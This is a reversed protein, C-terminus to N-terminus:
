YKFKFKVDALNNTSVFEEIKEKRLKIGKEDGIAEVSLVINSDDKYKIIRIILDYDYRMCYVLEIFSRENVKNMNHFIGYGARRMLLYSNKNRKLEKSISVQSCEDAADNYQIDQKIFIREWWDDIDIDNLADTYKSSCNVCNLGTINDIYESCINIQRLEADNHKSIKYFDESLISKYFGVRYSQFKINGLTTLIDLLETKNNDNYQCTIFIITSTGRRQMKYVFKQGSPIIYEFEISPYIKCKRNKINKTVDKIIYSNILAKEAYKKDEIQYINRTEENFFYDKFDRFFEKFKDKEILTEYEEIVKIGGNFSYILSKKAKILSDDKLYLRLYFDIEEYKVSIAYELVKTEM